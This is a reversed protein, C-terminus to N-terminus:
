QFAGAGLFTQDARGSFTLAQSFTLIENGESVSVTRFFLRLDFGTKLYM